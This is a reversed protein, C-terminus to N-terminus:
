RGSIIFEPRELPRIEEEDEVVVDVIENVYLSQLIQTCPM